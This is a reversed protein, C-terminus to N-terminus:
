RKPSQKKHRARGAQGAKRRERGRDDRTLLSNKKLHPHFNDKNILDLARSFGLVIAELQSQKGSGRVLVTAYYDGLVGCVEFPKEYLLKAESGPFYDAIPKGNVITEGKGSYLKIRATATKRRGVTYFYAKRTAKAAKKVPAPKAAKAPKARVIPKATKVKTEKEKQPM